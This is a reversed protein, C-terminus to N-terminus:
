GPSNADITPISALPDGEKGLGQLLKKVMTRLDVLEQQSLCTSCALTPLFALAQTKISQGQETIRIIVSREDQMSRTRSVLGKKELKKLLPTLTGSDLMLYDGLEKVSLSLHEWLV